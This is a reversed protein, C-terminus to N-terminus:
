GKPLHRSCLAKREYGHGEAMAVIEIWGGDEDQWKDGVAMEADWEGLLTYDILREVGATTVTPRQDFTMVIVKFRQTARPTGDRRTKGGSPTATEVVPTLVIDTPDMAIFAKTQRRQVERDPAAM